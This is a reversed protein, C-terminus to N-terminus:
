NNSGNNGFQEIICSALFACKTCEIILFKIEKFYYSICYSNHISNKSHFLCLKIPHFKLTFPMFM